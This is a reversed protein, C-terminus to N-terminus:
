LNLVALADVIKRELETATRAYVVGEGPVQGWLVSRGDQAMGSRIGVYWEEYRAEIAELARLLSLGADPDEARFSQEEADWPRRFLLLSPDKSRRINWSNLAIATPM